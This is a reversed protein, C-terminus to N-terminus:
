ETTTNSNNNNSNNNSDNFTNEPLVSFRSQYIVM